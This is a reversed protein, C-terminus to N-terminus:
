YKKLASKNVLWDQFDGLVYQAQQEHDFEFERIPCYNSWGFATQAIPAYDNPMPGGRGGFDLAIMIIFKQKRRNNQIQFRFNTRM